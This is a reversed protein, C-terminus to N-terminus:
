EGWAKQWETHFTGKADTREYTHSGFFDRQAQTLNAPLRGSRYGDFYAISSSFAPVPIGARIAAATAERIATHKRRLIGAFHGDLMLNAPGPKERFAKKADDLLSARIICGGRWIVAIDALNLNYAYTESAAGLLSFGQAYATIV